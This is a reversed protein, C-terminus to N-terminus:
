SKSVCPADVGTCGVEVTCTVIAQKASTQKAGFASVSIEDNRPEAIASFGSDLTRRKTASRAQPADSIVFLPISAHGIGCDAGTGALLNLAV